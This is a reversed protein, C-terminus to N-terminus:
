GWQFLPLQLQLGYHFIVVGAATMVAALGAAEKLSSERDGLASLFVAAFSAPVLGGYDGLIVFALVGGLICLWGRWENGDSAVGHGKAHALGQATLRASGGATLGILLGVVAMLGGLAFPVLGPGMHRPTGLEYSYGAGMVGLGMAILLAAGIRDKCPLKLSQM